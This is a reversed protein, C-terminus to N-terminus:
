VLGFSIIGTLVPQGAIKLMVATLIFSDKMHTHLNNSFLCVKRKNGSKYGESPVIHFQLPRTM